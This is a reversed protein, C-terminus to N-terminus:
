GTAILALALKFDATDFGEEIEAFLQKLKAKVIKKDEAAAFQMLNTMARIALTKAGQEEALTIAQQLSNESVELLKTQINTTLAFTDHTKAALIMGKLRYFEPVFYGEGTAEALAIAKEVEQQALSLEGKRILVEAILYYCFPKTVIAGSSEWLKLGSRMEQLAVDHDNNAEDPSALASILSGHILRSFSLWVLFDHEKCLKIAKNTFELGKSYEQRLLHIAGAFSFAVSLSFPHNLSTSISIAKEISNLATEPEGCSWQSWALYCLSMIAPNQVARPHHTNRSSSAICAHFLQQAKAHNGQHFTIEGLTWQIKRLTNSDGDKEALAMSSDALAQAEIFNGRMFHFAELGLTSRLSQQSDGLSTALKLAKSYTEGVEPSGYGYTAILSSALLTTFELENRKRQEDEPSKALTEIGRRLHAIAERYAHKKMYLRGALRLYKAAQLYNRALAFHHAVIEPQTNVIDAHQILLAATSDHLSRATRAPLSQYATDRILAHKFWLTDQDIEGNAEVLGQEILVNLADQVRVATLGALQILLPKSFERGLVSAMQAVSKASGTADLRAMLLDQLTAPIEALPTAANDWSQVLEQGQTSHDQPNQLLMRISEELYLPVGDTSALISDKLMASLSSTDLMAEMLVKASSSSLPGLTLQHVNDRQSWPPINSPRHSILILSQSSIAHQMYYNIFDLTASDVWQLDEIILNIPHEAALHRVWAIILDFLKTKQKNPSLSPPAFKNLTPISLFHCFLPVSTEPDRDFEGIAAEIVQMKDSDEALNQIGIRQKLLQILPFYPSEEHYDSCNLTISLFESGTLSYSFEGILRSKGIGADGNILVVQGNNESTKLWNDTLFELEERRGCFTTAQPAKAKAAAPFAPEITSVQYLRTPESVGKLSHEGKDQYDFADGVISHTMASIVVTNPDAHDQMRAAIAPALGAALTESSAGSGRSGLIVTGTHVAVRVAIANAPHPSAIDIALDNRIEQTLLGLNTVLDLGTMVARHASNGLAVPYGFYILVGDGLYQAIYGKNQKVITDCYEYYAQLCDNWDDVSMANSLRTSGVLDCFLVTLQRREGQSFDPYKM